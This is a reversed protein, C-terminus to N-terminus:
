AAVVRVDLSVPTLRPAFEGPHTVWAERAYTVGDEDVLYRNTWSVFRPLARPRPAPTITRPRFM